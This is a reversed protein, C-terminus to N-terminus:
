LFSLNVQYNENNVSLGEQIGTLLIFVTIFQFYYSAM